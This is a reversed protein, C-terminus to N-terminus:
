LYRSGLSTHRLRMCVVMGVSLGLGFTLAYGLYSSSRSSTSLKVGKSGVGSSSARAPAVVMRVAHIDGCMSSMSEVLAHLSTASDESAAQIRQLCRLLVDQASFPVLQQESADYFTEEGAAAEEAQQASDAVGAATAAVSVEATTSRAASAAGALGFEAAAAATVQAHMACYEKSWEIFKTISMVAETVMVAEVSSQLPWGLAATCSMVCLLQM